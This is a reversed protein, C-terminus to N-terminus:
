EAKHSSSFSNGKKSNKDALEIQFLKHQDLLIQHMVRGHRNEKRRRRVFYASQLKEEVFSMMTLPLTQGMMAKTYQTCKQRRQASRSSSQKKDEEISRGPNSISQQQQQQRQQSKLQGFIQRKLVEIWSRTENSRKLAKSLNSLKFRSPSLTSPPTSVAFLPSWKGYSRLIGGLKASQKKTEANVSKDAVRSKPQQNKTNRHQTNSNIRHAKPKREVDVNFYRVSNLDNRFSVRRRHRPLDRDKREIEEKGEHEM